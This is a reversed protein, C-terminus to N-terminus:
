ILEHIPTRQRVIPTPRGAADKFPVALPVGIFEYWEPATAREHPLSGHWIAPPGQGRPGFFIAWRKGVSPFPYTM